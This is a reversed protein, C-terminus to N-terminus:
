LCRLERGLFGAVVEAKRGEGPEFPVSALVHTWVGEEQWRKLRRWATVYAGYKRPLEEWACGTRLVYLIGNLVKRDDARLHRTPSPSVLPDVTEWQGDSFKREAM